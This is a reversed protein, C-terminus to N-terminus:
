RPLAPLWIAAMGVVWLTLAAVDQGNGSLCISAAMIALTLLPQM